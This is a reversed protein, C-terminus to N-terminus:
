LSKSKRIQRITKRILLSIILIPGTPFVLLHALDIFALEYLPRKKVLKEMASHYEIKGENIADAVTRNQSNEIQAEMPDVSNSVKAEYRAPNWSFGVLSLILSFLIGVAWLAALDKQDAIPRSFERQPHAAIPIPAQEQTRDQM